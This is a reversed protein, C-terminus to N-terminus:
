HVESSPGSELGPAPSPIQNDLEVTRDLTSAADDNLFEIGYLYLARRRVAGTARVLEKSHPRRFEIEIRIGPSLKAAAFLFMGGESINISLGDIRLGGSRILVPVSAWLRHSRRRDEAPRFLMNSIGYRSPTNTRLNGFYSLLRVIARWGLPLSSGFRSAGGWIETDLNILNHLLTTGRIVAVTEERECNSRPVCRNPAMQEM